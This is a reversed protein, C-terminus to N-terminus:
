ISLQAEMEIEMGYIAIFNSYSIENVRSLEKWSGGLLEILKYSKKLALYVEAVVVVSQIYDDNCKSNSTSFLTFEFNHIKM